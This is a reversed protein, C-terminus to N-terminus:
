FMTLKMISINRRRHIIIKIQFSIIEQKNILFSALFLSVLFSINLYIIPRGHEMTWVNYNLYANHHYVLSFMNLMNLKDGRKMSQSDGSYDVLEIYTWLSDLQNKENNMKKINSPSLDPVGHYVLTDVDATRQYKLRNFTMYFFSM